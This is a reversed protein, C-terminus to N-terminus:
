WKSIPCVSTELALKIGNCGCKGCRGKILTGGTVGGWYECGQCISVRADLIEPSAVHLGSKAWAVMSGAFTALQRAMPPSEDNYCLEPRQKCCNDIIEQESPIKLGNSKCHDLVKRVLNAFTPIAFKTKTEEQYYIYGGGPPVINPKKFRLM